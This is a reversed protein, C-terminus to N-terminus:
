IYWAIVLCCSSLLLVVVFVLLLEPTWAALVKFCYHHKHLQLQMGIIFMECVMVHSLRPIFFLDLLCNLWCLLPIGIGFVQLSPKHEVAYSFLQYVPCTEAFGVSMLPAMGLKHNSIILYLKLPKFYSLFFVFGNQPVISYLCIHQIATWHVETEGKKNCSKM